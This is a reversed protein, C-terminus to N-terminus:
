GVTVSKFDFTQDPNLTFNSINSKYAMRNDLAFLMADPAVHEAMIRYAAILNEMQSTRTSASHAAEVLGILEQNDYDYHGVNSVVHYYAWTLTDEATSNSHVYMDYEGAKRVSNFATRDMIQLDVNFGVESMMDVIAQLVEDNRPFAGSPEIVTITHGDYNSAALCAKAKELDYPSIKKIEEAQKADYGDCGAPVPWYWEVGGGLIADCILQRDIGYWVALRANEDNFLKGESCCFGLMALTWADGTEYTIGPLSKVHDLQEAPIDRIIDVEGTELASIRTTDEAIYRFTFTDVNSEGFVDKGYWDTNRELVLDGGPVWSVFKFPGCGVPKAFYEERTMTTYVSKNICDGGYRPLQNVFSAMPSSWHFIVEYDNVCEVDELALYLSNQPLLENLWLEWTFEVDEAKLEDGDHFRVGQRIKFTWATSDENTSWDTFLGGILNGNFDSYVYKDFILPNITYTQVNNNGVQDLSVYDEGVAYIVNIPAGAESKAETKTETKATENKTETKAETKTEATPAATCAVLAFMMALALVIALIKKM